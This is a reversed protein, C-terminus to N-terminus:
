SRLNYGSRLLASAAGLVVFFSMLVVAASTVPSVDAVGLFGYRLGNVMYLLPNLRSVTNWPEPLLDISYFVGGLFALPLLVFNPFIALHDFKQAWLAAIMGLLALTAPVLIAFFLTWGFHHLSFWTFSLAVLYVLTGVILARIMAAGVYAVLMEWAGIPAVLIDTITGNIKSQFLSSSTNLFSDRIMTMMVLGPVVFQIYPVGSIERLRSGLAVGFVLFYLSTTVLPSLVTQLWVKSFRRVEKLFLTKLAIASM